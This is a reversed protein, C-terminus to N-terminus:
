LGRTIKVVNGNIDTEPMTDYELGNCDPCISDLGKPLDEYGPTACFDKGCKICVYEILVAM